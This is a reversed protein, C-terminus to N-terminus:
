FPLDEDEDDCEETMLFDNGWEDADDGLVYEMFSKIWPDGYARSLAEFIATQDSLIPLEHGRKRRDTLDRFQKSLTEIQDLRQKDTIREFDGESHADDRDKAWQGTLQEVADAGRGQVEKWRARMYGVLRESVGSADAILPKSYQPGGPTLPARVLRWAANQREPSTLPLTAKSNASLAALVAESRSGEFIRVPVKRTGQGAQRYAEARYQGDLVIIQESDPDKWVTLPDFTKRPNSTLVQRLDRLHATDYWDRFSFDANVTLVNLPLTLCKAM